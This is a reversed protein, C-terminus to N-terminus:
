DSGNRPRRPTMDYRGAGAEGENLFSRRRQREKTAIMGHDKKEQKMSTMNKGGSDLPRPWCTQTRKIAGRLVDGRWEVLYRGLSVPGGVGQVIFM